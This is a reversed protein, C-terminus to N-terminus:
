LVSKTLYKVELIEWIKRMSTENIMYYKLDQTLSSRIICYATWNMKDSDKELIENLKKEFRLADELISPTLADIM